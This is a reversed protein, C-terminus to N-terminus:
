LASLLSLVKPIRPYQLISMEPQSDSRTRWRFDKSFVFSRRPPHRNIDLAVIIWYIPKGKCFDKSSAAPQYTFTNPPCSHCEKFGGLPPEATYSNRACELCPVLGTPSYTGYGCVPICESLSKSGEERTYTGAPCRMCNGQRDKDQYFGRPCLSCVKQKSSASTGAPCHVASMYFM